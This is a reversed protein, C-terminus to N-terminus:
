NKREAESLGSEAKIRVLIESTLEMPGREIFTSPTASEGDITLGEIAVLGTELYVRDVEVGILAAELKERVEVGAELFEAKRAIERIRRALEIRRGFSVRAIAFRVGARSEADCWIVSEYNQDTKPNVLHLMSSTM